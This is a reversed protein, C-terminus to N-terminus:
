FAAPDPELGDCECVYRTSRACAANSFEGSGLLAACAKGAGPSPAGGRWPQVPAVDGLVTLWIDRTVRDTVGIWAEGIGVLRAVLALEDADDLVVLHTGDGDDECDAEAVDWGSTGNGLRYVTGAAGLPAYNDPCPAITRADPTGAGADARVPADVDGRADNEGAAGDPPGPPAAGAPLGSGDFRCGCVVLAV